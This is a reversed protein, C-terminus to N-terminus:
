TASPVDPYSVSFHSRPGREFLSEVAAIAIRRWMLISGMAASLRDSKAILSRCLEEKDEWPLTMGDILPTPARNDALYARAEAAQHAWSNIEAQTSAGRLPACAREFEDEVMGMAQEMTILESPEREPAHGEALWALYKSWGPEGVRIVGSSNGDIWVIADDGTISQYRM